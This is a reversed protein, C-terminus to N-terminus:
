IWRRVQRCYAEYAPGFTAHLYREEREIVQADVIALVAALPLLPWLTNLALSAGLYIAVFAVYQPNRSWRYPGAKMLMTAPRQLMIGTLALFFVRLAWLFVAVGAAILLGGALSLAGDGGSWVYLPARTHVWWALLFGAAFPVTPPVSVGPGRDAVADAADQRATVLHTTLPM